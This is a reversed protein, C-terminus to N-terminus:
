MCYGEYSKARVSGLRAYHPPTPMFPATPGAISFSAESIGCGNGELCITRPLQENAFSTSSLAIPVGGTPTWYAVAGTLNLQMQGHWVGPLTQRLVLPKRAADPHLTRDALAQVIEIAREPEMASFVDFACAPVLPVQPM